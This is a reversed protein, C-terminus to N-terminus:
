MEFRYRCTTCFRAGPERRAGCEPCTARGGAVSIAVAAGRDVRTAASPSTSIVTGPQRSDSYATDLRGPKLSRSSLEQVAVALEKGSVDPVGVTGSSVHVRVEQNRKARARPAPDQDVIAGAPLTDDLEGVVTLVFGARSLRQEAADRAMGRLDPIGPGGSVALVILVAAAVAAAGAL